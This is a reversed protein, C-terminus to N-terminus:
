EVSRAYANPMFDLMAIVKPDNRALRDAEELLFTSQKPALSVLMMGIERLTEYICVPDKEAVTEGVARMLMDVAEAKKEAQIMARAQKQKERRALFSEVYRRQPAEELCWARYIDAYSLGHAMFPRAAWPGVLLRQLEAWIAPAIAEVVFRRQVLASAKRGLEAAQAPNKILDCAAQAMAMADLYPVAVGGGMACFEGAGGAREFSVVPRGLAAAELMVLPFPDERSTLCFVDSLALLGHPSALEGVFQFEAELGLKRLDLRLYQLLEPSNCSGIWLFRLPRAAGLLRRLQVAVQMFLDPAKRLDLTGCATVVHASDPIDFRRRLANVESAPMAQAAAGVDGIEYHVSIRDAPVAFIRRIREAVAEACAFIHNSHRVVAAMNRAGLHQYGVDLEHFHTLVPVDGSQLEELLMGNCATNSYILDFSPMLSPEAAMDKPTLLKAVEAFAPELAGGKAVLVEFNLPTNRRLWRLLHLLFFPAGTRSAEHLVFLVKPRASVPGAFSPPVKPPM